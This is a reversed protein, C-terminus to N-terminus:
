YVTPANLQRPPNGRYGATLDSRMRTADDGPDRAASSIVVKHAAGIHSHVM